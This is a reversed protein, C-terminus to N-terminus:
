STRWRRRMARTTPSRTTARKRSCGCSRGPACRASSATPATRRSSKTADRACSSCPGAYAAIYRSSEYREKAIADIPFIRYHAQVVSVLSDFPTALALREVPRRSALFCAVGSGLSRGVVAISAHKAHVADYLALADSFLADQSPVMERQHRSLYLCSLAYMVVPLIVFSVAGRRLILGYRPPKAPRFM